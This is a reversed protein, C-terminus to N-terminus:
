GKTTDVQWVANPRKLGFDLYHGVFRALGVPVAYGTRRTGDIDLNAVEIVVDKYTNGAANFLSQLAALSDYWICPADIIKDGESRSRNTVLCRGSRVQGESAIVPSIGCTGSSLDATITQDVLHDMTEASYVKNLGSCWELNTQVDSIRVIQQRDAM